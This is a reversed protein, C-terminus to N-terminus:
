GSLLFAVLYSQPPFIAVATFNGKEKASLPPLACHFFDHKVSALVNICLARM